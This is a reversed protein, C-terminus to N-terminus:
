VRFRGGLLRSSKLLFMVRAEMSYEATAEM